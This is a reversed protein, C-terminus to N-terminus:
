QGYSHTNVTSLYQVNFPTLFCLSETVHAPAFSDMHAGEARIDYM